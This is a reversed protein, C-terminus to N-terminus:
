FSQNQFSFLLWTPQASTPDLVIAGDHMATNRHILHASAAYTGGSSTAYVSLPAGVTVADYIRSAATELNVIDWGADSHIGYSTYDLTLGPHWGEEYAPAPLPARMSRMRIDPSGFDSKVNVVLRQIGGDISVQIVVHDGNPLPCMWAPPVVATVVGDARGFANTFVAGFTSACGDAKNGADPFGADSGADTGADDAGADFDVSADADDTGSDRPGDDPPPTSCAALFLLATLAAPRM